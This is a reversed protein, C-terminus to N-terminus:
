DNRKAVTVQISGNSFTIIGSESSITWVTEMKSDTLGLGYGQDSHIYDFGLPSHYPGGRFVHGGKWDVVFSRYRHTHLAPLQLYIPHGRLVSRSVKADTYSQGDVSYTVSYASTPVLPPCLSVAAVLFATILALGIFIWRRTKRATPTAPNNMLSIVKDEILPADM